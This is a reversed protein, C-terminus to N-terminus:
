CGSVYLEVLPQFAFTNFGMLLSDLFQVSVETVQALVMVHIDDRKRKGPITQVQLLVCQGGPWFDSGALFLWVFGFSLVLFLGGLLTCTRVYTRIYM